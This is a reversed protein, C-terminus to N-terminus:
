GMNILYMGNYSNQDRSLSDIIIYPENPKEIIFTPM